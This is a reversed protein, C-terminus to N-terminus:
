KPKEGLGREIALFAQTVDARPDGRGGAICGSPFRRENERGFRGKM